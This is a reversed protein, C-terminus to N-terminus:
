FSILIILVVVSILTFSFFAGVAVWVSVPARKPEMPQEKSELEDRARLEEEEPGKKRRLRACRTVCPFYAALLLATTIVFAVYFWIPAGSSNFRSYSYTFISLGLGVNADAYDHM